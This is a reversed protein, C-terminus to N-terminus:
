GSTTSPISSATCAPAPPSCGAPSSASTPRRRPSKTSRSSATPERRRPRRARTASARRSRCRASSCPRTSRSKSLSSAAPSRTSVRRLRRDSPQDQRGLRPWAFPAAVCCRASPSRPPARRANEREDNSESGGCRRGARGMDRAQRDVFRPSIFAGEGGPPRSTKSTLREADLASLRGGGAPPPRDGDDLRGSSLRPAHRHSQRCPPAGMRPARYDEKTPPTDVTHHLWGNWGPPTM